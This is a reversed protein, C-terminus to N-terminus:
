ISFMAWDRALIRHERAAQDCGRRLRIKVHCLLAFDFDGLEAEAGDAELCEFEGGGLRPRFDDAANVNGGGDGAFVEALQCV